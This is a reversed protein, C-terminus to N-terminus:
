RATAVAAGPMVQVTCGCAEDCPLYFHGAHGCWPCPLDHSLHEEQSKGTDWM